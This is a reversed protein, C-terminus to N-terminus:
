RSRKANQAEKSINLLIGCAMLLAVIASGGYSVFPLPVGTLPIIAVMSGINLFVQVAIWTVLGSALVQSFENPAHLAIRYGRYILLGFLIVFSVSGFFGVEEAFIAFISDTATEPLFLHKQRSQGLGVGWLGGSGLALLIQKIHYSGGLPDTTQLLFTELRARRYPSIIILLFAALAGIGGFVFFPLMSIGAVFIQIMSITGVVITTGLDPQLMILVCVIIVPLFFAALHMKKAAVKALYMALTLKLFESPQLSAFGLDLWRSAGQLKLGLGPLFVLLMLILNAFFLYNAVKEWFRFNIKSFIVLLVMGVLVAWFQKSVFYFQNNFDKIALPYSADAIVLLGLTAFFVTLGFFGRDIHKQQKQLKITLAIYDCALPWFHCANYRCAM